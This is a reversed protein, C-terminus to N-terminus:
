RSRIKDQDERCHEEQRQDDQNVGSILPNLHLLIGGFVDRFGEDLEGARELGVIDFVEAREGLIVYGSGRLRVPKYCQQRQRRPSNETVNNEPLFAGQRPTSFMTRM